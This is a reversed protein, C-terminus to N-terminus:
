RIMTYLSIALCFGPKLFTVFASVRYEYVPVLSMHVVASRCTAGGRIADSRMRTVNKERSHKFSNYNRFLYFEQFVLESM